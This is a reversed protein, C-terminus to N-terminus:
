LRVFSVGFINIYLSLFIAPSEPENLLTTHLQKHNEGLIQISERIYSKELQIFIEHKKDFLFFTKTELITIFSSISRTFKLGQERLEIVKFKSLALIKTRQQFCCNVVKIIRVSYPEKMWGFFFPITLPSVQEEWERKNDWQKRLKRSIRRQLYVQCWLGLCDILPTWVKSEEPWTKLSPM